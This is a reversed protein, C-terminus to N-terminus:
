FVFYKYRMEKRDPCRDVKKERFCLVGVIEITLSCSASTHFLSYYPLIGAQIQVKLTIGSFQHQTGQLDSCCQKTNTNRDRHLNENM